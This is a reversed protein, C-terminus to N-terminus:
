KEELFHIMSIQFVIKQLNVKIFISLAKIIRASEFTVKTSNTKTKEFNIGESDVGVGDLRIIVKDKNKPHFHMGWLPSFSGSNLFHIDSKIFNFTTKALNHKEITLILNSEFNKPGSIGKNFFHYRDKLLMRILSIEEYKSIKSNIFTRSDFSILM